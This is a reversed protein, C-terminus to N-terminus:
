PEVVLIELRARGLPDRDVRGLYVGALSEAHAPSGLPVGHLTHDPDCIWLFAVAPKRDGLVVKQVDKPWGGVPQGLGGMLMDIVSEPFPTAGPELNVVDAPKIGRTEDWGNVADYTLTDGNCIGVVAYSNDAQKRYTRDTGDDHMITVTTGDSNLRLPFSGRRGSCSECEEM